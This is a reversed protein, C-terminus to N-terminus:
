ETAKDTKAMEMKLDDKGMVTTTSVVGIRHEKFKGIIFEPPTLFGTGHTGVGPIHAARVAEICIFVKEYGLKRANCASDLVCFDFALGVILLRGKKSIMDHIAKKEPRVVAM